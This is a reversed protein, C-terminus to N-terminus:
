NRRVVAPQTRNSLNDVSELREANIQRTHQMQNNETYALNRSVANERELARFFEDDQNQNCRPVNHYSYKTIISPEYDPEQIDPIPVFLYYHTAEYYFPNNHLNIFTDYLHYCIGIIEDTEKDHLTHSALFQHSSFFNYFNHNNTPTNM